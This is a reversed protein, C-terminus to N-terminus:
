KTSDKRYKNLVHHVNFLPKGQTAHIDKTTNGAIIDQVIKEWIRKNMKTKM